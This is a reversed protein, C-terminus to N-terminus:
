IVAIAAETSVTNMQKFLDTVPTTDIPLVETEPTQEAAAPDGATYFKNVVPDYHVDDQQIIHDETAVQVGYKKLLSTQM